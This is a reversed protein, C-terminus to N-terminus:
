IYFFIFFLFKFILKDEKRINEAVSLDKVSGLVASKRRWIM